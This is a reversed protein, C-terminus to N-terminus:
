GESKMQPTELEWEGNELCTISASFHMKQESYQHTQRSDGITASLRRRDGIANYYNRENLFLCVSYAHATHTSIERARTHLSTESALPTARSVLSLNM